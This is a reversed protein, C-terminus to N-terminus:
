QATFDHFSSRFPRSYWDEQEKSPQWSKAKPKKMASLKKSRFLNTKSFNKSTTTLEKSQKQDPRGGVVALQLIRCIIRNWGTIKRRWFDVSSPFILWISEELLWLSFMILHKWKKKRSSSLFRIEMKLSSNNSNRGIRWLSDQTLIDKGGSM